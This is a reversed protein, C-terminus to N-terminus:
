ALWRPDAPPSERGLAHILVEDRGPDARLVFSDPALSALLVAGARRGREGPEDEPGRRFPRRHAHGPHRSGSHGGEPIARALAVGTRLTAPVLGALARGWPALHARSVAFRREARARIRWDWAALLGAVVAGTAAEHLGAGGALLLYLALTGLWVLPLRLM